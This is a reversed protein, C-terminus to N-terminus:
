HGLGMFVIVGGAGIADGVDDVGVIAADDFAVAFDHLDLHRGIDCWPEARDPVDASEERDKHTLARPKRVTADYVRVAVRDDAM